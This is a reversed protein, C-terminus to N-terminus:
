SEEPAELETKRMMSRLRKKAGALGQVQRDIASWSDGKSSLRRLVTRIDYEQPSLGKALAESWTLPAAVPAGERARASYPAVAAQAYANRLYDLFVRAGRKNKRQEVTLEDPHSVSLYTALGRAFKRVQAFSESRDLPVVVHLGRSGTTQVFPVLRLEGLVERLVQAASQVAGFDTTSPDLDFILRDPHDPQQRNSLGAHLTICDQEALYVLTAADNAVV